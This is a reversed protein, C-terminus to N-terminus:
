RILRHHQNSPGALGAHNYRNGLKRAPTATSGISHRRARSQDPGAPPQIAMIAAVNQPGSTNYLESARPYESATKKATIASAVIGVAARIDM